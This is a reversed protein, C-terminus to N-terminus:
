LAESLRALLRVLTFYDDRPLATTVQRRVEGVRPALAAHERTGDPTLSLSGAARAVWGRGVLDDVVAQVTAPPDFLTLSDVLQAEGLPGAALSSLVQWGRRDVGSGHLARDFAAEIRADAAKLWWGIPRSLTEEDTM